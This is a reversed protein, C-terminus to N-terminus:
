GGSLGWDDGIDVIWSVIALLGGWAQWLSTSNGELHAETMVLIPLEGM